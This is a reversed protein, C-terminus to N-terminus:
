KTEAYNKGVQPEAVLPVSIQYTAEMCRRIIEKAVDVEDLPAEILAEDHISNIMISKMGKNKFEKMIAISAKTMISAALAQIQFNRANNVLNIYEKRDLKAQTYIATNTNFRKWLELSDKIVAGYQAFLIKARGLHRIRGTEEKVWGKYNADDAAKDFWEKLRPFARFYNNILEEAESQNVGIEFQLKYSTLGYPIGLAYAKAKQRAKKDIKGLYNPASKDSSVGQLRETMIAIESYFDLNNAFIAQLAPDGSVHAFVKPELSEYDSGIFVFGERPILSRRVSNTYKAIIDGDREEGSRPLQQLNSSLRGSITGHLKFNGYFIGNESEELMSEIYTSKLKSLKNYVILDKCWVLEDSVSEIFDEDVQPLGTPTRSLPKCQLKDFFLKKLHVKSALNFMYSNPNDAKWAALQTGHKKIYAPVKGTNTTIPYDKRLLWETFEELYPAIAAQIRQETKVLDQNIEVLKQNMYPIDLRIGREEMPITVQKLLPIVNSNYHFDALGSKQLIQFYHNYVRFTLLTDQIAYKGLTATDAKFYQTASGGNAKISAQMAEKEAKVDKGYLKAGIEKLGLPYEPDCTHKLLMVDDHLDPLLDIGFNNKTMRSDFSANFMLLKKGKLANLTELIDDIPLGIRELEKTHTNWSYIPVYYGREANSVSFGIVKDKRVNLGTTETDYALMENDDIFMLM